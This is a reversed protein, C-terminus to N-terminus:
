GGALALECDRCLETGLTQRWRREPFPHLGSVDGGCAVEQTDPDLAHLIGVPARKPAERLQRIPGARLGSSKVSVADTSAIRDFAM